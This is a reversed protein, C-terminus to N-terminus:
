AIVSPEVSMTSMARAGTCGAILRGDGHLVEAENFISLSPSNRRSELLECPAPDLGSDTAWTIMVARACLITIARAKWACSDTSVCLSLTDVCPLRMGAATTRVRLLHIKPVGRM